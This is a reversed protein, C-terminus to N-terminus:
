LEQNIIGLNWVRENSDASTNITGGAAATVIFGTLCALMLMLCIIGATIYPLHHTHQKKMIMLDEKDTIHSGCEECYKAKLSIKHGCSPCSQKLDPRRLFYLLLGIFPTTFFIILAWLFADDNREKCDHCVWAAFFCSAALWFLVFGILLVPLLISLGSFGDSKFYYLTFRLVILLLVIPVGIIFPLKERKFNKPSKNM